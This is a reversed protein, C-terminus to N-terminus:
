VFGPHMAHLLDDRGPVQSHRIAYRRIKRLGIYMPCLHAPRYQARHSGELSLQRLCRGPRAARRPGAPLWLPGEIGRAGGEGLRGARRGARGAGLAPRRTSRLLGSRSVKVLECARKVYRRQSKEAEIFPYCNVPDGERLFGHGAQPHRRGRAAAQEGPAARGAGPARRQYARRRGDRRRARGAQGVRAGRDRDPRLGERGSRGVPGRRQCLEVIEAKFEATFSRRRRPKKGMGEM